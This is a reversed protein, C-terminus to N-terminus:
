NLTLNSETSETSELYFAYVNYVLAECEPYLNRPISSTALENAVSDDCNDGALCSTVREAIRLCIHYISPETKSEPQDHGGEELCILKTSILATLICLILVAVVSFAITKPSLPLPHNEMNQFPHDRM